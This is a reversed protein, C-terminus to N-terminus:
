GAVKLPVRYKDHRLFIQQSDISEIRFISVMDGVKYIEGNIVVAKEEAGDMIMDISLERIARRMNAKVQEARQAAQDQGADAVAQTDTTKIGVLEFPNKQVYEIPVQPRDQNTLTYIIPTEDVPEPDDEEPKDPKFTYEILWKEVASEAESNAKAEMDDATLRMALLVVVAVIAVVVIAFASHQTLKAFDSGGSADDDDSFGEIGLPGGDDGKGIAGLTMSGPSQDASSDDGSLGATDGFRASEDDSSPPIMSM